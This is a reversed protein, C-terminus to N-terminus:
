KIYTPLPILYIGRIFGQMTLNESVSLTIEIMSSDIIGQNFTLWALACPPKLPMETALMKATRPHPM